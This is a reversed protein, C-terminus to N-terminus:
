VPRFFFFIFYNLFGIYLFVIFSNRFGGVFCFGDRRM